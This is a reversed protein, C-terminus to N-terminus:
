TVAIIGSVPKNVKHHKATEKNSSIPNHDRPKGHKMEAENGFMCLAKDSTAGM